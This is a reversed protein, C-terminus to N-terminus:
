TPPRGLYFSTGLIAGTDDGVNEYGEAITVEDDIFLTDVGQPIGLQLLRVLKASAKELEDLSTDNNELKIMKRLNIIGRPKEENELEELEVLWCDYSQKFRDMKVRNFFHLAFSTHAPAETVFTDTLLAIIEAKENDSRDVVQPLVISFQMSYPEPVQNVYLWKGVDGAVATSATGIEFSDQSIEDITYKGDFKTSDIISIEDNKILGHQPSICSVSKVGTASEINSVSRPFQLEEYVYNWTGTDPINTETTEIDFTEDTVNSIIFEDVLGTITVKERENLRHTAETKCRVKGQKKTIASFEVIKYRNSNDDSASASAFEEDTLRRLSDNAFDWEVTYHTYNWTGTKTFDTEATVIDFTDATVNSTIYKGDFVGADTIIIRESENLGHPAETTCRVKGPEESASFNEITHRPDNLDEFKDMIDFGTNTVNIVSYSDGNVTVDIEIEDHLRLGQTPTICTVLQSFEIDRKFDLFPETETVKRPRLLIHEVVYFDDEDLGLLKSVRRQFGAVNEADDLVTYDFGKGRYASIGPYDVLFKRKDEILAEDTLLTQDDGPPIDKLLSAQDIFQESFRAALHNLFRNSRDIAGPSNEPEVMNALGEADDPDVLITDIDPVNTLAQSFYTRNSTVPYNNVSFLDKAHDLQALANALVQDFITIYAQLQRAQAHRESTASDPLGLEGIGYARPFQNQISEYETLERDEGKPVM